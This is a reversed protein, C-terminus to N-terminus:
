PPFLFRLMDPFRHEWSATSHEGGSFSISLFDVGPVFGQQLAVAEMDGIWNDAPYGTDEYFRSIFTPRGHQQAFRIMASAAYEYPPSFSAVKGFTSDFAYAAYTSILGGLSTGSIATNKPDSLTRFRRDVEPKLTDRIAQLYAIGGGNPMWYYWSWPTYDFTRQGASEIAVVIIPEMERRRILDECIRNVHM